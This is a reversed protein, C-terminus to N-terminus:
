HIKQGVVYALSILLLIPDEMVQLALVNFCGDNGNADDVEAQSSWVPLDQSPGNEVQVEVCVNDEYLRSCVIYM